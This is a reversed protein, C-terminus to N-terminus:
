QTFIQKNKDWFTASVKTLQQIRHIMIQINEEKGKGKNNWDYKLSLRWTLESTETDLFMEGSKKLGQFVM